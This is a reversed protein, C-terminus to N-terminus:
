KVILEFTGVPLQANSFLNCTPNNQFAYRVKAPKTVKPSYVIVDNGEIKANAWFWKGDKGCITFGEVENQPLNATLKAKKNQNRVLWYYEPM